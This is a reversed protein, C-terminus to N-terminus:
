LVCAANARFQAEAQFNISYTATFINGSHGSVMAKAAHDGHVEFSAYTMDLYLLNGRCTATFGRLHEMSMEEIESLNITVLNPLELIPLGGAFGWTGALDLEELNVLDNLAVAHERRLHLGDLCLFTLNTLQAVGRIVTDMDDLECRMLNLHKLTDIQNVFLVYLMGTDLNECFKISLRELELRQLPSLNTVNNAYALSLDTVRNNGLIAMTGNTVGPSEFGTGSLDLQELETLAVIHEVAPELLTTGEANVRTIKPFRRVCALVVAPDLGNINWYGPFDLEAAVDLYHVSKLPLRGPLQPLLEAIDAVCAANEPTATGHRLAINRASVGLFHGLHLEGMYVYQRLCSRFDNCVNCLTFIALKDGRAAITLICALLEVPLRLIPPLPVPEASPGAPTIKRRKSSPSPGSPSTRRVRCALFPDM